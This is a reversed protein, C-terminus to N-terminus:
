CYYKMVKLFIEFANKLYDLVILRIKLLKFELLPEDIQTVHKDDIIIVDKQM